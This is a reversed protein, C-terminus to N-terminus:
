EQPQVHNQGKPPMEVEGDRRTRKAGLSVGFLRTTTEDDATGQSGGITTTGAHEVQKRPMIELPREEPVEGAEQRGSAYNTMLTLINNSLGRLQTLEHSLQRNEERLRENEELLESATGSSTSTCCSKTHHLALPTAMPSTNSSLVQEDDSNTPSVMRIAAAPVAAVTVTQAPVSVFPSVKRRQIDRLLSKEGRKFCDHAFEWRDPM